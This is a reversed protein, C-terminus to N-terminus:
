ADGLTNAYEHNNFLAVESSLFTSFIRFKAHKTSYYDKTNVTYYSLDLCDKQYVFEHLQINKGM